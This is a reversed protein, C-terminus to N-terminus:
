AVIINTEVEKKKLRKLYKYGVKGMQELMNSRLEIAESYSFEARSILNALEEESFVTGAHFAIVFNGIVYYDMLGGNFDYNKMSNEISNRILAREAEGLEPTWASRIISGKVSFAISCWLSLAKHTDDLRLALLQDLTPIPVPHQSLYYPGSDWIHTLAYTAALILAPNNVCLYSVIDKMLKEDSLCIEAGENVRGEIRNIRQLMGVCAFLGRTIEEPKDSSLLKKISAWGEQGYENTLPALLAYTNLIEFSNQWQMSVYLLWVQHLLEAGYPGRSLMCLNEESEFGCSFFAIHQLAAMLTEPAAEAEEVLCKILRTVPPPEEGRGFTKLEEIPVIPVDEDKEVQARFVNAKEVLQAIIPEAQKRALVAAMPIVEKWEESELFPAIPTLVTDSKDYEMYHGEVAAVAALYEQFTLHRFQYFPVTRGAEM